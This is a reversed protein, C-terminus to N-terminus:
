VERISWQFTGFDSARFTTFWVTYVRGKTAAFTAFANSGSGSNDDTTVLAGSPPFVDNAYSGRFVMVYPDDVPYSGSRRM